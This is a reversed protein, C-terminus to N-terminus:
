RLLRPEGGGLRIGGGGVVKEAQFCECPTKGGPHIFFFLDGRTDHIEGRPLDLKPPFFIGGGRSLHRQELKSDIEHRRSAKFVIQAYENKERWM